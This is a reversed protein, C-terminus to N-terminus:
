ALQAVLGKAVKDSVEAVKKNSVFFQHLLAAVALVTAIWLPFFQHGLVGGWLKVAVAKKYFMQGIAGHVIFIPFSIAGLYSLAKGSLLGTLGAPAAVNALTQKHLRM